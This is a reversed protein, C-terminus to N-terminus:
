RRLGSSRRSRFNRRRVSAIADMNFAGENTGWFDFNYYGPFLTYYPNM